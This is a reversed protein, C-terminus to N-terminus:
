AAAGIAPWPGGAQQELVAMAGLVADETRWAGVVQLGIPAGGSDRGVPVVGAPVGAGSFPTNCRTLASGTPEPVGEIVVERADAVPVLCPLVPVVLVDVQSFVGGLHDRFVALDRRGQLVRETPIREGRRLAEVVGPSLADAHDRLTAAHTRAEEAALVVMTAEQATPWLPLSVTTVNAGAGRLGDLTTSWAARVEADIPSQLVQKVVGVRLPSRVAPEVPQSVLASLLRAV